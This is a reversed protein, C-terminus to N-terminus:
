ALGYGYRDVELKIPRAALQYPYPDISAVSGIGIWEHLVGKAMRRQIMQTGM